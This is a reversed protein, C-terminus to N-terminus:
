IHSTFISHCQEVDNNSDKKGGEQCYCISVHMTFTEECKEGLFVCGLGWVRESMIECDRWEDGHWRM